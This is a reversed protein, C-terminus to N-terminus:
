VATEVVCLGAVRHVATSEHHVDWQVASKTRSSVAEQEKRKVEFKETVTLDGFFIRGKDMLHCKNKGVAM